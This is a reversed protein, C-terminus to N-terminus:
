NFRPKTTNKECAMSYCIWRLHMSCQLYKTKRRKSITNKSNNQFIKEWHNSKNKAKNKNKQSRTSSCYRGKKTLTDQERNWKLLLTSWARWDYCHAHSYSTHIFISNYWWYWRMNCASPILYLFYVAKQNGNIFILRAHKTFYWSPVKRNENWKKEKESIFPVGQWEHVTEIQHFYTNHTHTRNRKNEGSCFCIKISLCM